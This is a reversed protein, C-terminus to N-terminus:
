QNSPTSYRSVRTVGSARLQYRITVEIRGLDPASDVEVAEVEIRDGLWRELESRIIFRLAAASEVENAGFVYRRLGVGFDPRNVREGPDTLLLQRIMQEIHAVERATAIDGQGDLGFPFVIDVM